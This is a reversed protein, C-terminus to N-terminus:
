FAVLKEYLDVFVVNSVIKVEVSQALSYCVELLNVM